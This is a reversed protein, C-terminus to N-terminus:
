KHACPHRPHGSPQRWFISFRKIWFTKHSFGFPSRASGRLFGVSFFLVVPSWHRTTKNKLSVATGGASADLGPVSVRSLPALLVAPPKIDRHCWLPRPTGNTLRTGDQLSDHSSLPAMKHLEDCRDTTKSLLSVSQILVQSYFKYISRWSM